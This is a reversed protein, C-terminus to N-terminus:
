KVQLRYELMSAVETQSGLKAVDSPLPPGKLTATSGDVTWQFPQDTLPDLPVPLEHIQDLSDPLKGDHMALHHRVAEVIRLAAIKRQASRISVYIHIPHLFSMRVPESGLKKQMSELENQLEILQPWAQRPPLALVAGMKQDMCLRKHVYWRISAEDDSMAAVKEASIKLLQPLEARAYVVFQELPSKDASSWRDLFKRVASSTDEQPREPKPLDGLEELLRALQGAMQRWQTADRPRDLDNVAPLTMAFMGAESSAARDIQILSDPLASLAWYLNPSKPQSILESVQDLMAQQISVAVLQNVFFPTQALHRSNALGVLIGERAKDLEGHALHYRVKAALGYGLFSRLGQVDPLLIMYPTPTEGIPYEWAADRRFAARKMESYFNEPLVCPETWESAGLPRSVWERLEPYVKNMWNSQEWPLRLLIPAANGPRLEAEAPLLQYKLVPTEIEQAGVTLEIPQPKEVPPSDGCLGFVLVFSLTCLM